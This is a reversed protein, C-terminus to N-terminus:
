SPTTSVHRLFSLSRGVATWARFFVEPDSRVAWVGAPFALYSVPGGCQPDYKTIRCCRRPRLRSRGAPGGPSRLLSEVLPTCDKRHIRCVFGWALPSRVPAVDRPLACAARFHTLDHAHLGPDLARISAILGHRGGLLQLTPLTLTIRTTKRDQADLGHCGIFPIKVPAVVKVSHERQHPFRRDIALQMRGPRHRFSRGIAPICTTRM